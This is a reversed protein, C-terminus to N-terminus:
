SKIFEEIKRCLEIAESSLDDKSKINNAILKSFELKNNITGTGKGGKDKNSWKKKCNYHKDIFDGM